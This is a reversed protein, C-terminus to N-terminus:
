QQQQSQSSPQGNRNLEMGQRSPETLNIHRHPRTQGAARAQPVITSTSGGISIAEIGTLGGATVGELQPFSADEKADPLGNIGFGNVEAGPNFTMAITNNICKDFTVLKANRDVVVGAVAPAMRTETLFLSYRYSDIWFSIASSTGLEAIQQVEKFHAFPLVKKKPYELEISTSNRGYRYQLYGSNKSLDVSACLSIIKSNTTSCSFVILENQNCLTSVHQMRHHDIGYLRPWAGEQNPYASSTSSDAIAAANLNSVMMCVLTTILFRPWYFYQRM